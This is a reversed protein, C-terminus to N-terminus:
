SRRASLSYSAYMRSVEDSDWPIPHPRMATRVRDLLIGGAWHPGSLLHAQIGRALTEVQAFSQHFVDVDILPRDTIRDDNGGIDALRVFPLKTLLDEPFTRGVHFDEESTSALEPYWRPLLERLADIVDPYPKFLTM